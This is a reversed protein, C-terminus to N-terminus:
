FVQDNLLLQTVRRYIMFPLMLLFVTLLVTLYFQSNSLIEPVDKYLAEFSLQNVIYFTLPIQLAIMFSVITIAVNYDKVNTDILVNTFIVLSIYM